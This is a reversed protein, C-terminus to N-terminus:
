MTLCTCRFRRTMNAVSIITDFKMIPLKVACGNSAFHRMYVLRFNMAGCCAGARKSWSLFDSATSPSSRALFILTRPIRVPISM